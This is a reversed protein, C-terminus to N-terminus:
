GKDEPCFVVGEIRLAQSPCKGETTSSGMRMGKELDGDGNLPSGPRTAM